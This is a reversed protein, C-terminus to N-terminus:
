APIIATGYVTVEVCGAGKNKRVGSMINATHFKINLISSAGLTRAQEKMRLVAERRARDILSEYSHVRGGIFNSLMALFTKFYDMGVVVNGTVLQTRCPTMADPVAKLKFTMLNKLAEERRRISRYHVREAVTGIVFGAVLLGVVAVVGLALTFFSEDM